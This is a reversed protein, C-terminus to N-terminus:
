SYTTAVEQPNFFFVELSEPKGLRRTNSGAADGFLGKVTSTINALFYQKTPDVAFGPAYRGFELADVAEGAAVTGDPNRNGSAVIVVLQGTALPLTDGAAERLNGDPAIFCLRGLKSAEAMVKPTVVSGPLPRVRTVDPTFTTM